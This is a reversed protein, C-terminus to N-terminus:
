GEHTKGGSGENLLDRLMRRQELIRPFADRNAMTVFAAANLREYIGGLEPFVEAPRRTPPQREAITRPATGNAAAIILAAAVLCAAFRLVPMRWPVEEPIEWANKAARLVQEQLRPGPDALRHRSILEEHPDPPNM